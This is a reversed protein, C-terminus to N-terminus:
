QKPKYGPIPVKDRRRVYVTKEVEAVVTGANDKIQVTFKPEAKFNKDAEEKIQAIRSAAINFHATVTGKGPKLFKISSAKDVVYYDPGLNKILITGFTPDAMAFLSGGFHIGHMNKNWPYLKMQMDFSTFDDAVNKIRIGAGLLPPWLNMKLTFLFTKLSM